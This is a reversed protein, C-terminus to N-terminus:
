PACNSASAYANTFIMGEAALADLNPTEYYESGMFGVDRWGMDDINILIINPHQELPKKRKINGCSFHILIVFALLLRQSHKTFKM